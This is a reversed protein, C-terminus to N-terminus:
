VCVGCVCVCVCCVCECVCVLVCVCVCVCVCVRVCVRVCECLHNKLVHSGSLGVTGAFGSAVLCFVCGTEFVDVAVTERENLLTEQRQGMVYM